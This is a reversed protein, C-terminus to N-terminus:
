PALWVLSFEPSYEPALLVQLDPNGGATDHFAILEVYDGPSLNYVTSISLRTNTPAGPAVIRSHALSMSGNLLIRIDRVYLHNVTEAMEWSGSILYKGGQSATLRTNNTTM